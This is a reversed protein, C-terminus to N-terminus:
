TSVSNIDEVPLWDDMNSFRNKDFKFPVITEFSELKIIVIYRKGAIREFMTKDLKLEKQYHEVLKVSEDRSLKDSNIVESVIAKVKIM